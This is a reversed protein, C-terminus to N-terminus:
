SVRRLLRDIKNELLHRTLEITKPFGRKGFVRDSTNFAISFFRDIKNEKKTRVRELLRKMESDTFALIVSKWFRKGTKINSGVNYIPYLGFLLYVDAVDPQYGDLFNNFWFNYVFHHVKPNSPPEPRVYSRSSKVQVRLVKSNSTNMVVFDIGRQQRSTPILVAFGDGKKFFKQTQLITEYESYPLTFIAEM